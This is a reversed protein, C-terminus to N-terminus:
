IGAVASARVIRSYRILVTSLRLPGLGSEDHYGGSRSVDSAPPAVWTSMGIDDHRQIVRSWSLVRISVKSEASYGM